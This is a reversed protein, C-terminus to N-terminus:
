SAVERPFLPAGVIVSAGSRLGAWELADGLRAPPMWGLRHWLEEMREPLVPQLLASVLRLAESGRGSRTTLPVRRLRYLRLLM